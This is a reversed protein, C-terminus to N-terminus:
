FLINQTTCAGSLTGMIACRKKIEESIQLIENAKRKNNVVEISTLEFFKTKLEKHKTITKWQYRTVCLLGTGFICNYLFDM